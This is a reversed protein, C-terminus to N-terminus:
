HVNSSEPIPSFDGTVPHTQSNIFKVMNVLMAAHLIIVEPGQVLLITDKDHIFTRLPPLKEVSVEHCMGKLTERFAEDSLDPNYGPKSM